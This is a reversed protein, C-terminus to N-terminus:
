KYNQLLLAIGDGVGTIGDRAFSSRQLLACVFLTWRGVDRHMSGILKWHPLELRIVTKKRFIVGPGASAPRWFTLIRTALAWVGKYKGLVLYCVEAAALARAV